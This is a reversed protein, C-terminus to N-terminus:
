SLTSSSGCAKLTLGLARLIKNVHVHNYTPASGNEIENVVSPRENIKQSLQAQTLKLEIRRKMISESINKPVKKHKFEELNQDVKKKNVLGEDKKRLVTETTQGANKKRLVIPEWDQHQYM